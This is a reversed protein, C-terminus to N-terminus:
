VNWALDAGDAPFTGGHAAVESIGAETIAVAGNGDLVTEVGSDKREYGDPVGFLRRYLRIATNSISPM